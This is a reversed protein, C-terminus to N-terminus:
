GMSKHLLLQRTPAAQNKNANGTIYNQDTAYLYCAVAKSSTYSVVEPNTGTYITDQYTELANLTKVYTGNRYIMTNSETATIRVIDDVSQTTQSAHITPTVIFTKGLQDAPTSQHFIHNPTTNIQVEQGGILVAFAKNSCLVSGSLDTFLDETERYLYSQGKSLTITTDIRIKNVTDSLPRDSLDFTDPNLQVKRLYMDITQDATAIIAFETAANDVVYTQVVYSNTLAPISLVNSADYKGSQHRSASYVSIPNNSTINVARNYDYNDMELYVEESPIQIIKHEGSNLNVERSFSSNPNSILVKTENHDTTLFLYFSLKRESDSEAAGSSRMFTVWFETGETTNYDTNWWSTGTVQGVVSTAWTLLFLLIHLFRAKM